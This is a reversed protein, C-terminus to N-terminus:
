CDTVSGAGASFNYSIYRLGFFCESIMPPGTEMLEFSPDLNLAKSPIIEPFVRITM